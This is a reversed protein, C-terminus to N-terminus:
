HGAPARDVGGAPGPAVREIFDAGASLDVHFHNRHDANYNPTLVINWIGAAKQACIAQHLFADKDGEATAACTEEGDPDIVWDELVSYTTGDATVYGAIDIALAYAHQSIGNPCDPPTGGGICRYNYVGLDLVEVVEREALLPAALVLAAALRCDMYFSARPEGAGMVRHALGGIPTTVTVPAAVGPMEPGVQYAVGRQDLWAHCEAPGADELGGGAQDGEVSIEGSCGAASLAAIVIAGARM